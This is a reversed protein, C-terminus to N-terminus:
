IIIIIIGLEFDWCLNGSRTNFSLAFLIICGGFLNVYVVMM